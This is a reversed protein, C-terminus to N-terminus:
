ALVARERLFSEVETRTPVGARGGFRTVKIAAAANAFVVAERTRMGEALALALAGHFTDGAGLTDVVDVHFAPAHHMAGQEIWFAGNAGDTAMMLADGLRTAQWLGDVLSGSGTLRTLGDASFAVLSAAEILGDGQSPLDADLLAVRGSSKARAMLTRAGSPWRTDGLVVRINSSIDPLWAPDDPLNPDLFNVVQREGSADVFVASISSTCGAFRRALACDVGYRELERVIEDGIADDGLRTALSAAGGLRAVAVAATAAIGGGVAAFAQARHKTATTPLSAVSFVHDLAAIGVCLVEPRVKGDEGSTM